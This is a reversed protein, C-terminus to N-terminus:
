HFSRRISFLYERPRGPTGINVFYPPGLNPNESQLYFKNTLNTVAFTAEWDHASDKWALHANTLGRGGIRNGPDNVPLTWIESRYSYDLRPTLSSGNVFQFAYQTGASVTLKPAYINQMGITVGSFPNTSTYRFDMYGASADVSWQKTPRLDAELELGKVNANGVNETAACPADPFPSINDCKLVQLQIDKYKSSYAALNIRARHDFFESKLGVEYSQLTEPNFNVVQSAFYPRPNVGGGKFGTAVQAYTMLDDTWRYDVAARYDFRNGSYKGTVDELSSLLPYPQGDLGLRNFTFDKTDKTYRGALTV